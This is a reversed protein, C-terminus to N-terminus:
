YDDEFIEPYLKQLSNRSSLIIILSNNTEGLPFLNTHKQLLFLNANTDLNSCILLLYPRQIMNHLREIQVCWNALM